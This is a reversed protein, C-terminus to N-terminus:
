RVNNASFKGRVLEARRGAVLLHKNPRAQKVPIKGRKGHRNGAGAFEDHQLVARVANQGFVLASALLLRKGSRMRNKEWALGESPGEFVAM